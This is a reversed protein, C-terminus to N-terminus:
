EKSSIMRTKCCSEAEEECVISNKRFGKMFNAFCANAAVHDLCANRM